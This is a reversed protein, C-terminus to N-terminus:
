AASRTAPKRHKPAVEVDLGYASLACLVNDLRVNERGNEFDSLFRLGLPTLRTVDELGTHQQTRHFRAIGGLDKTTVIAGYPPEPTRAHRPRVLLSLGLAQLYTLVKALSASPKGNELESIFRPGLPALAVVDSIRAAQGKRYGRLLAGLEAPSTIVSSITVSM